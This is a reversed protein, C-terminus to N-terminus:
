SRQLIRILKSSDLSRSADYADVVIIRRLDSSTLVRMEEFLKIRDVEILGTINLILDEKGVLGERINKSFFTKENFNYQGNNVYSKATKVDWYRSTSELREVFEEATHGSRIM